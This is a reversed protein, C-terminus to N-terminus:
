QKRIVLIRPLLCFNYHRRNKENNRSYSGSHSLIKFIYSKFSFFFIHAICFMAQLVSFTYRNDIWKFGIDSDFIFPDVSECLLNILQNRMSSVNPEIARKLDLLIICYLVSQNINNCKTVLQNELSFTNTIYFKQRPIYKCSAVSIKISHYSM